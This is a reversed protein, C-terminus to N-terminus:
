CSFIWLDLALFALLVLIQRKQKKITCSTYNVSRASQTVIEWALECHGCMRIEDAPPSYAHGVVAWLVDTNPSKPVLDFLNEVSGTEQLAMIDDRVTVPCHCPNDRWALVPLGHVIDRHGVHPRFGAFDEFRNLLVVFGKQNDSVTSWFRKDTRDL